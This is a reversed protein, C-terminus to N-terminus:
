HCLKTPTQYLFWQQLTHEWLLCLFPLIILLLILCMFNNEALLLLIVPQHHQLLLLSPLPPLLLLIWPSSFILTPQLTAFPSFLKSPRLSQYWTSFYNPPKVQYNALGKQIYSYPLLCYYLHLNGCLFIVVINGIYNCEIILSISIM